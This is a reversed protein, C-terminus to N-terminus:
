GSSRTAASRRAPSKDFHFSLDDFIARAERFGSAVRRVDINTPREVVQAPQVAAAAAVDHVPIQSIRHGLRVDLDDQLARFFGLIMESLPDCIQALSKLSNVRTEPM